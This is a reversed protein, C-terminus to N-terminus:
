TGGKMPMILNTYGVEAEGQVTLVRESDEFDIKVTDSGIEKLCDSLYIYNVAIEIDEDGYVVPIDEIAGGLAPNQSSVSLREKTLKLRIQNYSEEVLISVRKIASYLLSRKATFFRERDTPIIKKYDPFKGEILNSVLNINDYKFFIQNKSFGMYLMEDEFQYKAVEILVIRPIIVGDYPVFFDEKSIGLEKQKKSVLSLRKGDTGVMSLDGNNKELFVGTLSYKNEDNSVSFIVKRIMEKFVKPNLVVYEEEPQTNIDPFDDKPLGAITFEANIDKSSSRITLRNNEDSVFVVDEEPLERIISLLKRGNVAVAGDEKSAVKDQIKIGTELNSSCFCIADQSVDILVNSLVPVTSKSSAITDTYSLYKLLKQKPISINM